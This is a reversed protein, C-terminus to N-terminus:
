GAQLGSGHIEREAGDREMVPAILSTPHTPDRANKPRAAEEDKGVHPRWDEQSREHAPKM